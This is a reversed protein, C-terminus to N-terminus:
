ARKRATFTGTCRGEFTGSGANGRLSGTFKNAKGPFEIRGASTIKGRGGPGHVVGGAIIVSFVSNRAGCLESISRTFTWAGDFQSPPQAQAAEDLRSKAADTQKKAEAERRAQEEAANKEAAILEEEKRKAEADTRAKALASEEAKKKAAETERQRNAEAQRRSQDEATKTEAALREDQRQRAETELRAKALAEAELKGREAESWRLYEFSGYAGGILALAVCAVALWRGAQSREAPSSGLPQSSQGLLMPRLQAVSQPRQASRVRLCSDIAALFGPRFAGKVTGRAPPMLDEDVRMAAELPPQGTVALYLTGGLAYFDSWPGQLRGESSYQEHPSYGAKVIGTLAHSKEVVARRASGFDLLVPTGDDRIVINDPAIDRHLFKAAHMVELADLLPAVIRDLEGQTPPRGLDELWAAFSRGWEFRMVMYATTNAEFVRTVRVISPHDFRALTRAEELFNSRSKEFTAKHRESKPRVCMTPDRDGFDYPYYEKIAVLTGLRIDEARYTIGFGGSGVVGAVHYDGDLVTNVPLPLRNDM